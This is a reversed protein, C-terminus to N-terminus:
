PCLSDATRDLSDAAEGYDSTARGYSLTDLRRPDFGAGRLQDVLEQVARRYRDASVAAESPADDRIAEAGDLLEEFAARMEQPSAVGLEAFPDDDRLREIAACFGDPDGDGDSGCGALGGLGLVVAVVITLPHAPVV